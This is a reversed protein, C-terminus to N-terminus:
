FWVSSIVLTLSQRNQVEFFCRRWWRPDHELSVSAATPRISTQFHLLVTSPQFRAGGPICLVMYMIPYVRYMDIQHLIEEMLLVGAFNLLEGRFIERSEIPFYDELWWKEPPINFKSPTSSIDPSNSMDFMDWEFGM